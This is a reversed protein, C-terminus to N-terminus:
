LLAVRAFFGVLDTAPFEVRVWLAVLAFPAVALLPRVYAQQYFYPLSTGVVRGAILPLVVTVVIASPIATGLAVGALGIRQVLVVSLVLNAAAEGIRLLAIIRHRSMGYLVSSFVYQPASLFIAAALISLVTSSPGAFETGMWLGIFQEGLVLYSVVIPATVVACIKVGLIFAATLRAGQHLSHLESALPNFIQASAGLLARLYGILSGAVAYYAVSSIPLFIGAVIADTATILKEGVNNVIVYFGYGLVRRSVAVFSRRTQPQFSFPLGAQKLLHRAIFVNLVGGLTAVLFTIAAIAVIGHGRQLFLVILVARLVNLAIGVANSLEWRKLGILVGNFVNFFFTQAITLGTFVMALRGDRWFQQELSLWHPFGWAAVGTALLALLTIGGYILLAVSLVRNLAAANRRAAYKSTYRVVSERVGFDMLYLYGVFQSAVAWVGYWASGIHNVVFPSLFFSIAVGVALGLWSSALSRLLSSGRPSNSM